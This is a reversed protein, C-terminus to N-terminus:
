GRSGSTQMPQFPSAILLPKAGKPYTPLLYLKAGPISFIANAPLDMRHFPARGGKFYTPLLYLKAGPVSLNANAPFTIRDFPAKGGKVFPPRLSLIAIM